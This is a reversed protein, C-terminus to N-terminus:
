FPSLNKDKFGLRRLKTLNAYHCNTVHENLFKLKQNHKKLKKAINKLLIKKGSAINIIGSFDKDYLYFIIKLIKKIKIFDRYQNLYNLIIEKKKSKVIKTELAPVLFDNSQNKSYFSFIRGICYNNKRNAFKKIIYNEAMKKTIGYKNIPYTKKNETISKKSFNYVHSTSSFFFWKLFPQYKIISDILNKTGIFNIKKAKNFNSEVKKVPVIAALHIILDFKKSKIWKVVQEKDAIDGRFKIFKFKKSKLLETGIIGNSGTIGCVKKKYNSM